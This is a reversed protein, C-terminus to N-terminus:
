LFIIKFGLLFLNLNTRLERQFQLLLCIDKSTSTLKPISYAYEFLESHMLELLKKDFHVNQRYHSNKNLIHARYFKSCFEDDLRSNTQIRKNSFYATGWRFRFFITERTYRTRNFYIFAFQILHTWFYLSLQPKPLKFTLNFQWNRFICAYNRLTVKFISCISRYNWNSSELLNIIM